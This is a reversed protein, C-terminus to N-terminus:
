KNLYNQKISKTYPFNVYSHMRNIIFNPTDDKTINYIYMFFKHTWDENDIDYWTAGYNDSFLSNCRSSQLNKKTHSIFEGTTIPSDIPSLPLDLILRALSSIVLLQDEREKLISISFYSNRILDKINNDVKLLSLEKLLKGASAVEKYHYKVLKVLGM